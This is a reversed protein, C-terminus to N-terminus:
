RKGRCTGRSEPVGSVSGTSTGSARSVATCSRDKLLREPTPFRSTSVTYAWAMSGPDPSGQLRMRSEPARHLGGMKRRVGRPRLM